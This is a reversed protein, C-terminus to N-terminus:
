AVATDAPPSVFGGSVWEFLEAREPATFEMRAGRSLAESNKASAAALVPATAAPNFKFNSYVLGQVVFAAASRSVPNGAAITDDRVQKVLENMKTHTNAKLQNELSVFLQRFQGRSIGPIGTARSVQLELPTRETSTAVLPAAPTENVPEDQPTSIIKVPPASVADASQPHIDNADGRHAENGGLFALLEDSEVVTDAVLRYASAVAGAVIVATLKDAARFRQILSTFDADASALMFEDIPSAGSLLDVADLVLNIDTSSKGQQTLSPCDIVRYGARTWQARYKSYVSPNLYCNRVLFRRAATRGPNDVLHETWRGPDSAFQEAAEEDLKRLGTYVNDFDVFIAARRIPRNKPPMLDEM